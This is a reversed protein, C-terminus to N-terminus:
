AQNVEEEDIYDRLETADENSFHWSAFGFESCLSPKSKESDTM